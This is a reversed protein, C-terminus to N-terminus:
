TGGFQKRRSKAESRNVGCCLRTGILRAHVEEEHGDSFALFAQDLKHLGGAFLLQPTLPVMLFDRLSRSDAVRNSSNPSSRRGAPKTARASDRAPRATFISTSCSSIAGIPI